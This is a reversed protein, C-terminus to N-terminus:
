NLQLKITNVYNIILMDVITKDYDMYAYNLWAPIIQVNDKTYGGNTDIRDLSVRHPAHVDLTIQDKWKDLATDLLTKIFHKDLDFELNNLKSRNKAASLLITSSGKLSSAYIKNYQETKDKNNLRYQIHYEKSNTPCLKIKDKNNERYRKQQEKIRHKNKQRYEKDYVKKDYTM